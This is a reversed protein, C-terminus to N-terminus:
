FNYRVLVEDGAPIHHKAVLITFNGVDVFYANPCDCANAFGALEHRAAYYDYGRGARPESNLFHGAQKVIRLHRNGRAKLREAEAFSVVDKAYWSIVDNEFIDSCAFLGYGADEQGINCTAFSKRIEVEPFDQPLFHSRPLHGPWPNLM